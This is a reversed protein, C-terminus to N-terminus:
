GGVNHRVLAGADRLLGDPGRKATKAKSKLVAVVLPGAKPGRAEYAVFGYPSAASDTSKVFTSRFGQKKPGGIRLGHEGGDVTVDGDQANVVLQGKEDESWRERTIRVENKGDRAEIKVGAVEVKANEGDTEIKVGPMRVTAREVTQGEETEVTLGPMHVTEKSTASPAAPTAPPKPTNAPADPMIARLEAEIPGLADAPPGTFSLLQLTVEVDPGGYSCSKGDPAISVRKLDGQSEPCDLKSITKVAEREARKARYAERSECGTVFALACCGAALLVIRNM